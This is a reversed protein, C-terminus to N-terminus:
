NGPLSHSALGVIRAHSVQFRRHRNVEAPNQHVQKLLCRPVGPM